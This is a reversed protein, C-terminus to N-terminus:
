RPQAQLARQALRPAGRPQALPARLGGPDRCSGRLAGKGGGPGGPKCTIGLGWQDMWQINGGGTGGPQQQGMSVKGASQKGIKARCFHGTVRATVGGSDGHSGEAAPAPHVGLRESREPFGGLCGSCLSSPETAPHEHSPQGQSAPPAKEQRRGWGLHEERPLEGLRARAESPPLARSSELFFFPFIQLFPLLKAPPLAPELAASAARTGSFCGSAAPGHGLM